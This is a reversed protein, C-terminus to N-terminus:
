LTSGAGQGEYAMELRIVPTSYMRSSKGSRIQM